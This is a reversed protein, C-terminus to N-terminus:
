CTEIELNLQLPPLYDLSVRGSRRQALLELLPLGRMAPISTRLNELLPASLTSAPTEDLRAAIHALSQQAAQPALLLAIGAVDPVPRAAHLPEPYEGDYSVFLLPARQTAVQALAELLGAAFSADYACLVQCPQMCGSAISWYGAAANHVSNHFRTPSVMREESALTECLAHCNHGDGSSASFITALQAADAGAQSVAERGLALALKVIRSARRRETPPLMEPVPLVSPAPTYPERNALIAAGAPWGPMGPAILGIGNIWAALAPVPNM